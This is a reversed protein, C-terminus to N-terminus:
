TSGGAVCDLIRTHQGEASIGGPEREQWDCTGGTGTNNSTSRLDV